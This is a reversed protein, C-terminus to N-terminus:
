SEVEEVTLLGVGYAKGKGIGVVLAQALADPQEVIAVGRFRWRGVIIRGM